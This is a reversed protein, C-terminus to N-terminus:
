LRENDYEENIRLGKYIISIDNLKKALVIESLNKKKVIINFYHLTKTLKLINLLVLFNENLIDSDLFEVVISNKKIKKSQIKFVLIKLIRKLDEFQLKINVCQIKLLGCNENYEIGVDNFNELENM